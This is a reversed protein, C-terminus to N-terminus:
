FVITVTEKKCSVGTPIDSCVWFTHTVSGSPLGADGGSGGTGDGESGGGTEEVQYQVHLTIVSGENVYTNVGYKTLLAHMAAFIFIESGIENLSDVRMDVKYTM